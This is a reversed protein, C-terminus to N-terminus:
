KRVCRVRFANSKFHFAVSGGNFNEYWANANDAESSAWYIVAAFNGIATMNMYLIDLELSSPLYWDSQGNVSLNNCYVAANHSQVGAASSDSDESALATTDTEGSPDCAYTGGCQVLATDTWNFAGNNWYYTSAATVCASGNWTMPADCRTTYMPVNGDPTLGAYITGDACVSGIPGDSCSAYATTLNWPSNMLGITATATTTTGGSASSTARLQIYKGQM